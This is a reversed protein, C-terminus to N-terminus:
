HDFIIKWTVLPWQTKRSWKYTLIFQEMLLLLSVGKGVSMLGQVGAWMQMYQWVIMPAPMTQKTQHQVDASYM